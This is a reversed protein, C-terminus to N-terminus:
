SANKRGYLKELAARNVFVKEIKNGVSKDASLMSRKPENWICRFRTDDIAYESIYVPNENNFTNRSVGKMRSQFGESYASGPKYDSM